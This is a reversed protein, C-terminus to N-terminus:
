ALGRQSADGTTAYLFGDPGFALRGGNHITNKAIGSVIVEPTGLGTDFRMRVVRNDNAATFYAYVLRDTAFTPAVAIGLLGGEGGPVVGPVTGVTTVSGNAIRKIQATNRESVLASGDPLFALGWPSALNTAITGAQQPTPPVALIGVPDASATATTLAALLVLAAPTTRKM